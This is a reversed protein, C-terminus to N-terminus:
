LFSFSDDSLDVVEKKKDNSLPSKHPSTKKRRRPSIPSKLSSSVVSKKPKAAKASSANKSTQKTTRVPTKNSATKPSLKKKKKVSEGVSTDSDIIVVDDQDENSDIDLYVKKTSETRGSPARGGTKAKPKSVSRAKKTINDLLEDFEDDESSESANDENSKLESESDEDNDMDVDSDEDAYTINTAKSASRRSTRKPETSKSIDEHKGNKSKKKAPVFECDSDLDDDEEKDVNEDDSDSNSESDSESRKTSISKTSAVSDRRRDFSKRSAVGGAGGGDITRDSGGYHRLESEENEEREVEVEDKSDGQMKSEGLVIVSRFVDKCQISGTGMKSKKKSDKGGTRKFSLTLFKGEMPIARGSFVLRKDTESSFPVSLQIQNGAGEKLTGFLQPPNTPAFPSKKKASAKADDEELEETEDVDDDKEEPTEDKSVAKKEPPKLSLRGPFVVLFRTPGKTKSSTPLSLSASSQTARKRLFVDSGNCNVQLLNGPTLVGEDNSVPPNVPKSSVPWGKPIPIHQAKIPAAKSTSKVKTTSAKKVVAKKVTAKAKAPAKTKAVTAKAMTAVLQQDRQQDAM